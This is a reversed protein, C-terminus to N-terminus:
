VAHLQRFLGAAAAAATGVRLVKITVQAAHPHLLTCMEVWALREGSFPQLVWM